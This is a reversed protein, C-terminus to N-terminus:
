KILGKALEIADNIKSKDKGAGNAFDPRGGGSGGLLGCVQRIVDGAKLLSQAKGNVSCIVPVSDATDGILLLFSNAIADVVYRWVM